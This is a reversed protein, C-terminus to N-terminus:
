LQGNEILVIIEEILRDDGEPDYESKLNSGFLRALTQWFVASINGRLEKVLEYSTDGTERDILKILIRGQTITLKKLDEKYDKLLDKEILKMYDKQEKETKLSILHVEVDALKEGALKAWPYAKKVNYILRTYRRRERRSSFKKTPFIYIEDLEAVWLTDGDIVVARAVYIDQSTRISDEARLTSDEDHLRSDPDYSISDQGFCTAVALFMLWLIGPKILLYRTKM